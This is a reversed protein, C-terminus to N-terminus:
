VGCATHAPSSSLFSLVVAMLVGKEKLGFVCGFAREREGEGETEKCEGRETGGGGIGDRRGRNEKGREWRGRETWGEWGDDNPPLYIVQGCGLVGGWGM